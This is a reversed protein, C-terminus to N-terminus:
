GTKTALARRVLEALAADVDAEIKARAVNPFAAAFTEVIEARGHPREILRWLASTVEDLYFVEGDVPDVLFTEDDIETVNVAPNRAFMQDDTM